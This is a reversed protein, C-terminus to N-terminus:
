HLSLDPVECNCPSIFENGIFQQKVSNMKLYISVSGPSIVSDCKNIGIEKYLVYKEFSAQHPYVLCYTM